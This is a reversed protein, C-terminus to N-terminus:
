EATRAPPLGLLRAPNDQVMVKIEDPKLGLELMAFVFMRFMEPAPPGWDFIADTSLICHEPGVQRITDCIQQPSEKQRLPHTLIFCFEILAGLNSLRVMEEVTAGVVSTFAHTVVLRTFAKDHAAEALALAESPSVHGTCLIVNQADSVIQLIEKTEHRLQGREDTVSILQEAPFTQMRPYAKKLIKSAGTGWGLRNDHKAGWTPLWIVKAGLEVAAEVVWPSLGGVCPNLAIGGFVKIDKLQEQLLGARSMTPWIHSKLVMAAMGYSEAMRLCEIDSLRMRVKLSIEPYHHCHLDVAGRMLGDVPDM